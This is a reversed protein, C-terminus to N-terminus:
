KTVTKGILSAGTTNEIRVTVFSGKKISNDRSSSKAIVVPINTETFGYWGSNDKSPGKVLVVFTSNIHERNKERMISNQLDIAKKLRDICVEDDVKGPLLCAKTGERESYRYLYAFDFRVEEM